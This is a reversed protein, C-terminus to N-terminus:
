SQATLAGEVDSYRLTTEAFHEAKRGAAIYRETARHIHCARPLPTAGELPNSHEHDGGNYRILTVPEGTASVFLLGCSFGDPIRLNQRVYVRFKEGAASAAEYTVQESGRKAIKRARPNLVMKSVLILRDIEADTLMM